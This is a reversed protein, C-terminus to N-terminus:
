MPLYDVVDLFLTVGMVLNSLVLGAFLSFVVYFLTIKPSWKLITFIIDIL